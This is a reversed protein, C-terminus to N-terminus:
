SEVSRSPCTGPWHPLGPSGRGPLRVSRRRGLGGRPRGARCEAERVCEWSQGRWRHVRFPAEEGGAGLWEGVAADPKSNLILLAQEGEPDMVAGHPCLAFQPNFATFGRCVSAGHARSIFRSCSSTHGNSVLRCVRLEHGM